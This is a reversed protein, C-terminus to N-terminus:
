GFFVKALLAVNMIFLLGVAWQMIGFKAKFERIASQLESKIELIDAKTAMDKIDAKTAVDDIRNIKIALEHAENTTVNSMKKLIDFVFDAM